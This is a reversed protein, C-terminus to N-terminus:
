VFIFDRQDDYAAPCAAEESFILRSADNDNEIQVSRLIFAHAKEGACPHM